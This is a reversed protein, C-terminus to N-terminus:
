GVLTGFGDIDTHTLVSFVLSAVGDRLPVARGDARLVAVRLRALRVQDASVDLGIVDYGRRRVTDAHLGTGCGLGVALGRGSPILEALAAQASAM